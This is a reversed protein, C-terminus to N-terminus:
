DDKFGNGYDVGINYPPDAFVLDISDHPLQRLGDLCDMCYVTNPVLPTGNRRVKAESNNYLWLRITAEPLSLQTAIRRNSWGLEQRIRIADLRLPPAQNVLEQNEKRIEERKIAIAIRLVSVSTM